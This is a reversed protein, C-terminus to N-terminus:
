SPSSSNLLGQSIGGQLISRGIINGFLCGGGRANRAQNVTCRPCRKKYISAFALGYYMHELPLYANIGITLPEQLITYVGSKIASQAQKPPTGQDGPQLGQASRDFKLPTDM